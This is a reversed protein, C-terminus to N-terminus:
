PCPKQGFPLFLSDKKPGKSGKLHQYVARNQSKGVGSGFFQQGQAYVSLSPINGHPLCDAKKSRVAGIVLIHFAKVALGNDIQSFGKCLMLGALNKNRCPSIAPNVHLSHLAVVIIIKLSLMPFIKPSFIHLFVGPRFLRHCHQDILQICGQSLFLGEKPQLKTASSQSYNSFLM